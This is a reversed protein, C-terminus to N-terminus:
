WGRRADRIIGVAMKAGDVAGWLTGTAIIVVVAPARVLSRWARLARRAINNM